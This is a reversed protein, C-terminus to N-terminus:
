TRLQGLICLLAHIEDSAEKDQGGQWRFRHWIGDAGQRIYSKV